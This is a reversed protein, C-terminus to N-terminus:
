PIWENKGDEMAQTFKPPLLLVFKVIWCPISTDGKFYLAVATVLIEFVATKLFFILIEYEFLIIQKRVLLILFNSPPIKKGNIKFHQPNKLSINQPRQTLFFNMHSISLVYAREVYSNM